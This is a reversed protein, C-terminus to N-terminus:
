EARPRRSARAAPDQRYFASLLAYLEPEDRQLRIPTDFFAETAVALLEAPNTAGYADLEAASGARLRQLISRIAPEWRRKLEASMPPVGDTAGDRMDLKHAFEHFVVNHGTGPHTGDSRRDWVILVPGHLMAQGSVMVAEDSVIGGDLHRPGRQRLVTPSIVISTVDSYFDFHLGLILLCAHAAIMVKM